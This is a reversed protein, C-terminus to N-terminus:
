SSLQESSSLQEAARSSPEVAKRCWKENNMAAGPQARQLSIERWKMDDLTRGWVSFKETKDTFRIPFRSVEEIIKIDFELNFNKYV